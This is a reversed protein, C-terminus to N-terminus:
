SVAPDANDIGIRELDIVVVEEARGGPHHHGIKRVLYAGHKQEVPQSENGDERFECDHNLLFYPLSKGGPHPIGGIAKRTHHGTQMGLSTDGELDSRLNEERGRPDIRNNDGEM